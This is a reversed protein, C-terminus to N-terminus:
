QIAGQQSASNAENLRAQIWSLVAAESWAVCRPTIQVCRPAKGQSMLNYWTSKGVRVLSLVEALSILRDRQVPTAQTTQVLQPRM